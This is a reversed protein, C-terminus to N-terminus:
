GYGALARHHFGPLVLCGAAERHSPWGAGATVGVSCGLGAVGVQRGPENDLLQDFNGPHGCANLRVPQPPPKAANRQGGLM